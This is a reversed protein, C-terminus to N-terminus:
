HLFSPNAPQRASGMLTLLKPQSAAQGVALKEIPAAASAAAGAAGGVAGGAGRRYFNIVEFTDVIRL